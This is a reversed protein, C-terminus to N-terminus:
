ASAVAQLRAATLRTLEDRIFQEGAKTRHYVIKVAGDPTPHYENALRFRRCDALYDQVGQTLRAAPVEAVVAVGASWDRNAVGGTWRRDSSM